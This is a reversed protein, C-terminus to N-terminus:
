PMYFFGFTVHFDGSEAFKNSMERGCNWRGSSPNARTTESTLSAQHRSNSRELWQDELNPPKVHRQCRYETFVKRSIISLSLQAPWLGYPNCHRSFFFFFFFFFHLYIMRVSIFMNIYQSLKLHLSPSFDKHKPRHFKTCFFRSGSRWLCVCRYTQVTMLVNNSYIEGRLTQTDLHRLTMTLRELGVGVEWRYLVRFLWGMRSEM